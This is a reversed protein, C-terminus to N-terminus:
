NSGSRRGHADIIEVAVVEIMGAQAENSTTRDAGAAITRWHRTEIDQRRPHATPPFVKLFKILAVVRSRHVQVHLGLRQRMLIVSYIEIRAPTVPPAYRQRAHREIEVLVFVSQLFKHGPHALSNHFRRAGRPYPRFFLSSRITPSAARAHPSIRKVRHDVCVALSM